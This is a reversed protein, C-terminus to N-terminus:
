IVAVNENIPHSCSCYILLLKVSPNTKESPELFLISTNPMTLHLPELPTCINRQFLLLCRSYCCCSYCSYTKRFNAVNCGDIFKRIEAEQEKCMIDGWVNKKKVYKMIIDAEIVKRVKCCGKGKCCDKNAQMIYFHLFYIVAM